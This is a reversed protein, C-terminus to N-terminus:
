LHIWEDEQSQHEGDGKTDFVEKGRKTQIQCLFNCVKDRAMGHLSNLYDAMLLPFTHRPGVCGQLGRPVLEILIDGVDNLHRRHV